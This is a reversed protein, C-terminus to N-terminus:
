TVNDGRSFDAGAIQDKTLIRRGTTERSVARTDSTVLHVTFLATRPRELSARTYVYVRTSYVIAIM